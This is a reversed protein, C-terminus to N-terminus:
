VAQVQQVAKLGNQEIYVTSIAIMRPVFSSHSTTGLRMFPKPM